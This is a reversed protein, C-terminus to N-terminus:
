RHSYRTAHRDAWADVTAQAWGQNRGVVVDPAPFKKWGKVTSVSVGLYAAIDNRSLFRLTM